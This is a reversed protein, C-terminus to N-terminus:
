LFEQYFDSPTFHSVKINKTRQISYGNPIFSSWGFLKLNFAEFFMGVRSTKVHPPTNHSLQVHMERM